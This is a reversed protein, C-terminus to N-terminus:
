SLSEGELFSERVNGRIEQGHFKRFTQFVIFCAAAKGASTFVADAAQSFASMSGGETMMGGATGAAVGVFFLILYAYWGKRCTEAFLHELNAEAIERCGQFLKYIFIIGAVGAVILLVGAVMVGAAAAGGAEDEPYFSTLLVAMISLVVAILLNTKAADLARSYRSAKFLGIIVIVSAAVGAATMVNSAADTLQGTIGAAGEAIYLVIQVLTGAIVWKLGSLDYVQKM